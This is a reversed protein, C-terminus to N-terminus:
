PVFQNAPKSLYALILFAFVKFDPRETSEFSRSEAHVLATLEAKVHKVQPAVQLLDVTAEVFVGYLSLDLSGLPLSKDTFDPIRILQYVVKVAQQHTSPLPM